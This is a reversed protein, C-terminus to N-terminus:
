LPEVQLLGSASPLALHLASPTASDDTPAVEKSETPKQQVQETLSKDMMELPRHTVSHAEERKTIDAKRAQLEIEQELLKKEKFDQATKQAVIGEELTQLRRLIEENALSQKMEAEERAAKETTMLALIQALARYEMRSSVAPTETNKQQSVFPEPKATTAESM